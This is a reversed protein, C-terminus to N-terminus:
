EPDPLDEVTALFEDVSDFVPINHEKAWLVEQDAGRSDGPLRVLADCCKLWERDYDLWIYHENFHIINWFSSLHPVFPAHGADLLRQAADIGRRINKDHDGLTMPGAVYVRM